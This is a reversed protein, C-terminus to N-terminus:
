SRKTKVWSSTAEGTAISKYLNLKRLVYTALEPLERSSVLERGVRWWAVMAGTVLLLTGLTPVLLYLFTGTLLAAVAGIVNTLAALVGLAALPPIAIDIALVALQLNGSVLSRALAQPVFDFSNTINGKEWRARQAAVTDASAPFSSVVQAQPYFIAARRSEALSLGLATDEALRSQGMDRGSLLEYPFAMGTGFLPCALGLARLGLPRLWNRIRYAFEAVRMSVPSIPLAEMFYLAQAPRGTSFAGQALLSIANPRIRCDADMIVVIDPPDQQLTGIGFELAYGKGRRSPDFREVVDVGATRAVEATDDVCNDAIVLIRDRPGLQAAADHLTPLLNSSENHAPIVVVVSLDHTTQGASNVRRGLTVCGAIVEVVWVFALLTPVALLALLLWSMVAM